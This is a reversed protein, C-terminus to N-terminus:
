SEVGDHKGAKGLENACRHLLVDPLPLDFPFVVEVVVHLNHLFQNRLLVISRKLRDPVAEPEEKDIEFGIQAGIVNFLEDGYTARNVSRDLENLQPAFDEPLFKHAVWVDDLCSKSSM